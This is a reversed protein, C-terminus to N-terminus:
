MIKTIVRPEAIIVGVIKLMDTIKMLNKVNEQTFIMAIITHV